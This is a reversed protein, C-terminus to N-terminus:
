SLNLSSDVGPESLIMEGMAYLSGAATSSFARLMVLTKPPVLIASGCNIEGRAPNFATNSLSMGGGALTKIIGAENVSILEFSVDGTVGAGSISVSKILGSTRAYTTFLFDSDQSSNLISQTTPVRISRQIVSDSVKRCNITGANALGSGVAIVELSNCALYTGDIAVTSTGNLDVTKVVREYNGDVLVARVTRAGTGALTDSTSSSVVEFAM